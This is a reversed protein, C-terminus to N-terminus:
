LTLGCSKKEGAAKIQQHNARYQEILGDNPNAGMASVLARGPAMLINGSMKRDVMESTGLKEQNKIAERGLDECSLNEYVNVAATAEPKGACGALSVALALLVMYLPRMNSEMGSM